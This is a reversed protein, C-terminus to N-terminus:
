RNKVKRKYEAIQKGIRGLEILCFVGDLKLERLQEIQEITLGLDSIKIPMDEGHIGECIKNAEEETYLGAARIDSTYGSRNPGWFLMFHKGMISDYRLALILTDKM